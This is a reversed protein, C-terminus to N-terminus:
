PSLVPIELDDSCSHYIKCRLIIYFKVCQLHLSIYFIYALKFLHLKKITKLKSSHVYIYRFNIKIISVYIACQTDTLEISLKKLPFSFSNFLCLILSVYFVIAIYFLRNIKKTSLLLFFPIFIFFSCYCFPRHVFLEFQIRPLRTSQHAM